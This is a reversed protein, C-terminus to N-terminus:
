VGRGSGTGVGLSKFCLTFLRPCLAIEKHYEEKSVLPTLNENGNKTQTTVRTKWCRCLNKIAAILWNPFRHVELVEVTDYAKRVDIWAASVNRKRQHCDLAVM